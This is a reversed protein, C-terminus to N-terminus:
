VLLQLLMAGPPEQAILTVKVGDAGPVRLAVTFTVNGAATEGTGVMSAPVPVVGATSSEGVPRV